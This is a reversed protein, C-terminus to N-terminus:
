ISRSCAPSGVWRACLDIGGAMPERGHGELDILVSADSAEGRERRWAGVAIALATLLVDNIRAHFAAPVDTLLATTAPISLAQQLHGASAYTDRDPDLVAGPILPIGEDLTAEWAPFEALLAPM